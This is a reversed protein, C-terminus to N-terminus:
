DLPRFLRDNTHRYHIHTFPRVMAYAAFALTCIVFAMVVVLSLVSAVDAFM